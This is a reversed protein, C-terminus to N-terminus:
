LTETTEYNSHGKRMCVVTILNLKRHDTGKSLFRYLFHLTNQIIIIYPAPASCLGSNSSGNIPRNHWGQVISQSLQPVIIPMFSNCPFGFGVSFVQELAARNVTYRVHSSEPEFGPRRQTLGAVLRRFRTVARLHLKLFLRQRQQKHRHSWKANELNQVWMSNLQSRWFM